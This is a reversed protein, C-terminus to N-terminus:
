QVTASTDDNNAFPDWVWLIFPWVFVGAVLSPKVEAELVADVLVPRNTETTVRTESRTGIINTVTTTTSTAPTQRVPTTNVAASVTNPDEASDAASASTTSTCASIFAVIILVSIAKILFQGKM